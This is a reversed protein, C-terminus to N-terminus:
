KKNRHHTERFARIVTPDRSHHGCAITPFFVFTTPMVIDQRPEAFRFRCIGTAEVLVLCKHLLKHM